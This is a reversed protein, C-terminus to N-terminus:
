KILEQIKRPFDSFLSFQRLSPLFKVSKESKGETYTIKCFFIFFREVNIVDNSNITFSKQFRTINIIKSNENFIVEVLSFCILLFAGCIIILMKSVTLDYTKAKEESLFFKITLIGIFNILVIFILIAKYIKLYFSSLTVM